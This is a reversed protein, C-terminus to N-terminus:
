VSKQIIILNGDEDRTYSYDIRNENALSNLRNHLTSKKIPFDGVGKIRIMVGKKKDTDRIAGLLNGITNNM